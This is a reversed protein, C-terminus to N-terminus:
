KAYSSSFFEDLGLIPTLLAASPAFKLGVGVGGPTVDSDSEAALETAQSASSSFERLM